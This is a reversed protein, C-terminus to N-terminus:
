FLTLQPTSQLEKELMNLLRTYRVPTNRWNIIEISEKLAKQKAEFESNFITNKLSPLSSHGEDKGRFSLSYIWLKNPTRATRLELSYKNICKYTTIKPNECGGHENWYFRKM